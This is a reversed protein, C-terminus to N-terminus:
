RTSAACWPNPAASFRRTTGSSPASGPAGPRGSGGSRATSRRGGGALPRHQSPAGLGARRLAGRRDRRRDPESGRRAPDVAGHVRCPEGSRAALLEDPPQHQDHVQQGLASRGQRELHGPANAPQTGPRSSAIMLYRGYQVYLAALAPDRGSRTRPSAGTPRCTPPRPEASTSRWAASCAGTSPSMPAACSRGPRAPLGRRAGRSPPMPIAARRRRLEPLEDGRRHHRGGRRRGRDPPRRWGDQDFRRRGGGQARLAFTLRGPIGEADRNSGHWGITDPGAPDPGGPQESTLSLTFSVLGPRDASLRLVIVGDAPSAIAERLWSTGGASFATTAVATELDLGRRYADIEGAVDQDIWVDGAPQYPMQRLPRGM